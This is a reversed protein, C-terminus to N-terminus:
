PVRASVPQFPSVYDVSLLGQPPAAWGGAPPFKFPKGDLTANRFNDWDGHQT